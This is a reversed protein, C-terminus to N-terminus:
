FHVFGFSREKGLGSLCFTSTEVPSSLWFLVVQEPSNFVANFLTKRGVNNLINDAINNLM